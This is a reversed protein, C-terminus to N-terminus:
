HVSWQVYRDCNNLSRSSCRLMYFAFRYRTKRLYYSCVVPWCLWSRYTHITATFTPLLSAPPGCYAAGEFRKCMVCHRIISPWFGTSEGSKQWHIRLVITILTTIPHLLVRLNGNGLRGGCRWLGKDDLFLGFQVRWTPFNREQVLKRQADVVKWYRSARGSNTLTTHGAASNHITKRFIKVARLIYGTMKLLWVM